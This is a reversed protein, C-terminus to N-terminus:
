AGNSSIKKLKANQYLFDLVKENEKRNKYGELGGSGAKIINKFKLPNIGQKNAEKEMLNALEGEDIQIDEKKKIGKLVLDRKIKKTIERRYEEESLDEEGLFHALTLSPNNQLKRYSELNEEVIRDVMGSPIELDTKGIIKDLIKTSLEEDYREKNLKKLKERVEDKLEEITQYGKEQALEGLEPLKVEKLELIKIRTHYDGLEVEEGKEKGILQPSLENEQNIEYEFEEGSSLDTVVVVDGLSVKGEEKPILIASARKINKIEEEMEEGSIAPPGTDEIEIGRYNPLEPEPLIEVEIRFIFPDGRDFQITETDPESVVEIDLKDLAKPLYEQILEKQADEYFMDKGFRAELLGRPVKGRRFGPMKIDKVTRKYIEELKKDVVQTPIQVKTTIKTKDKQVIETKM